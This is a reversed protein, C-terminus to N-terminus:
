EGLHLLAKWANWELIDYDDHVELYKLLMNYACWFLKPMNEYWFMLNLLKCKLYIVCVLTELLKGMDFFNKWISVKTKVM